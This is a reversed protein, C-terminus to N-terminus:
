IINRKYFEQQQERLGKALETNDFVRNHVDIIGPLVKSIRSAYVGCHLHEFAGLQEQNFKQGGIAHYLGACTDYFMPPDAMRPVYAQRILTCEPAFPFNSPHYKRMYKRVQSRIIPADLYMLCTHLRDIKHTKSWPELFSPEYSGALPEKFIWDEVCKYFVVDTDCVWFPGHAKNVLAEIWEDHATGNVIPTYEGDYLGHLLSEIKLSLRNGWVHIKATPFGVRLTKFVLLTGNLDKEDLCSALLHVTTNL